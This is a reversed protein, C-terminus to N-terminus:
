TRSRGSAPPAPRAGFRGAASPPSCRRPPTRRVPHRAAGARQAAARALRARYATRRRRRSRARRRPRPLVSGRLSPPLPRRSWTERWTRRPTESHLAAALSAARQAPERPRCPEGARARSSRRACSSSRARQPPLSTAPAPRPSRCAMRPAIQVRGRGPPPMDGIDEHIAKRISALLDEMRPEATVDGM